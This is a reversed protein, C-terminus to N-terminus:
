TITPVARMRCEFNRVRVSADEVCAVQSLNVHRLCAMYELAKYLDEAEVEHCAELNLHTIHRTPLMALSFDQGYTHGCLRLESAGAALICRMLEFSDQKINILYQIVSNLVTEDLFALLCSLSRYDAADAFLVALRRASISVLTAIRGSSCEVDNM